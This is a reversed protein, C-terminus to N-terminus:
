LPIQSNVHEIGSSRAHAVADNFTVHMVDSCKGKSLLGSVRFFPTVHGGLVVLDPRFVPCLLVRVGWPACRMDWATSKLPFSNSVVVVVRERNKAQRVHSIEDLVAEYEREEAEARFRMPMCLFIIDIGIEDCMRIHDTVSFSNTTAGGKAVWGSEDHVLVHCGGEALAATVHEGLAGQGIVSTKLM